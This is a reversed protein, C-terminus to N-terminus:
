WQAGDGGPAELLPPRSVSLVGRTLTGLRWGAAARAKLMAGIQADLMNPPGEPKLSADSIHPNTHVCM